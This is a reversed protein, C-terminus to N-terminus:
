DRLFRAMVLVDVLSGERRIQRRLIGETTFGARRYLAIARPNDAAVELLVKRVGRRVARQLIQRLAERGLGLGWCDKEGIVLGVYATGSARDIRSLNTLGVLRRTAIEIALTLRSGDRRDSIARLWHEAQRRSFPGDGWLAGHSLEADRRWAIVRALDARGFPRLRVGDPRARPRSM